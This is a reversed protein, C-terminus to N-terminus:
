NKVDNINKAFGQKIWNYIDFKWEILKQMDSYMIGGIHDLRNNYLLNATEDLYLIAKKTLDDMKFETNILDSIPRLLPICNELSKGATSRDKFTFHIEDGLYYFGNCIGYKEGVYDCKYDLIEFKLDHALFQIIQKKM